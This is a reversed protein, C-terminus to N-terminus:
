KKGVAILEESIGLRDLIYNFPYIVFDIWAPYNIKIASTSNKNFLQFISLIIWSSPTCYHTKIDDFGSDKLLKYISKKTFLQLHFPIWSSISYKGLIRMTISNGHPVYIILKGGKKLIQYCEKIVESCNPMHELANDIRIYDFTEKPLGATQLEGCIFHGNPLLEKCKQISQIGVDLGWVDYGRQNFELLKAGCGCGIDLINFTGKEVEKIPWSHPRSIFKRLIKKWFPVKSKTLVEALNVIGTNTHKSETSSYYGAITEWEPRENLYILKCNNCKVYTGSCDIGDRRNRDTYLVKSITSGCVPCNPIKINKL